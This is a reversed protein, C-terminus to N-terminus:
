ERHKGSKMTYECDAESDNIFEADSKREEEEEEEGGESFSGKCHEAEDDIFPRRRVNRVSAGPCPQGTQASPTGVSTEVASQVSSESESTTATGWMRKRCVAPLFMM